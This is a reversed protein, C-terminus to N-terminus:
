LRGKEKLPNVKFRCYPSSPDWSAKIYEIRQEIPLDELRPGGGLRSQGLLTSAGLATSAGFAGGQPQQQLQQSQQQQGFGGPGGLQSM